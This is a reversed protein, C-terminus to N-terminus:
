LTKLEIQEYPDFGPALDFLGLNRKLKELERRISNLNGM